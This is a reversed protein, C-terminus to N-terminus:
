SSHAKDPLPPVRDKQRYAKVIVQRIWQAITSHSAFLDKHSVEPLVFLSNLKRFNAKPFVQVRVTNVDLYHLSIDKLHKSSPATALSPM